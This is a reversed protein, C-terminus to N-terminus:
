GPSGFWTALADRLGHTLPRQPDDAAGVWAVYGDPRILLAAAPPPPAASCATALDVRGTWGRAVKALAPDGAGPGSTLDLLLPRARRLLEALRTPGDASLLPLDPMWRGLLPHAATSGGGVDYRVDSGGLLEAVHRLNPEHQLLEGFLARLATVEGGPTLLALQAQTQMVVREGVPYREGHFTDLLGPPAWGRVEAALKWGLNAVDQLGLNLGPGGTAAHVHAADGAVLIRRVRYRDAQRTNRSTLRRLVYAGPGVPAEMPVDEGLVRRVSDRLEAVTMRVEDDADAAEDAGAPGPRGWELTTVLLADPQFAAFVFVGHATRHYTFPRLRGSGPLALEGTEPVLLGAPLVVHASRSTIDETTVGPFGIGAEKRVVSHAGDCGVLYRARLRYAGEPGLVDVTVGDADQEFGSVEHGRRIEAGLERAREELVQELYRQPVALTYLPNPDLRRLDLPLGGFMFFPAPTPEPPAATAGAALRRYLGRADLLRVVQGALGNAKPLTSRAPLRELVVAQVGGLHLECALMLGNPGGGAIAVEAAEAVELSM